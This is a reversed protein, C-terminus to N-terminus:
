RHMSRMLTASLLMAAHGAEAAVQWGVKADRRVQAPALVLAQQAAV